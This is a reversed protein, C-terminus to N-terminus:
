ALNAASTRRAWGLNALLAAAIVLGGLALRLVDADHNWIVLNVVLGAPILANNMVALTGTDVQAAGRNWLFYGMGSAALGLWVLVGWQLGDAPWGADNGFGLFGLAAVPWAGVFFWGFHTGLSADAPLHAALHRYGVQGIAFCLNAGQVMFFGAWFHPSVATYRILAAGAVALVACVLYRPSFRRAVLDDILTIYVPTLISFLLVEPVSLWLFSQYFFLYMVGIQVAGVAALGLAARAGTTRPRLMPVFLALALTIRILVACYVDVQGALYVGILSFSFAWLLTVAVLWIM